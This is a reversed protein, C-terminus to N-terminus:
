IKEIDIDVDLQDELDGIRQNLEELAISKPIEIRSQLRFLTDGTFPALETETELNLISVQRSALYDTVAHVIGQHDAGRLRLRASYFDPTTSASTTPRITTTLKSLAPENSIASQIVQAADEARVPLALLMIMAFEGGLRTMRSTLVNGGQALILKCMDKVIGVRDPGTATLVLNGDTLKSNKTSTSFARSAAVPSIVNSTHRLALRAATLM